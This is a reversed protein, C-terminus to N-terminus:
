RSAPDELPQARPATGAEYGDNVLRALDFGLRTRAQLARAAYELAARDLPRGAPAAV